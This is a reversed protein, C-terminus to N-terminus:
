CSILNSLYSKLKLFFWGEKVFISSGVRGMVMIQEHEIQAFQISTEPTGETDHTRNNVGPPIHLPAQHPLQSRQGPTGSQEPASQHEDCEEHRHWHVGCVRHCEREGGCYQEM